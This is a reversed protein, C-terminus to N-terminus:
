AKVKEEVKTESVEKKPEVKVETKKEVKVEKKSEKKVVKKNNSKSCNHPDDTHVDFPVHKGHPMKRLSMREGCFRCDVILSM